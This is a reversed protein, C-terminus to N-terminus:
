DHRDERASATKEGVNVDAGLASLQVAVLQADTAHWHGVKVRGACDAGDSDSKLTQTGAPHRPRTQRSSTRVGTSYFM